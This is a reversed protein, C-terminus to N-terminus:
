WTLTFHQLPGIDAHTFQLGLLFFGMVWLHQNWAYIEDQTYTKCVPEDQAGLSKM